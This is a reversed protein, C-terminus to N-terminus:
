TVEASGVVQALRGWEELALTEARRQPEIGAARLWREVLAPPQNLGLALSNRLTKRKQSFGARVVRFFRERAEASRALLPEPYVDVRVIASDV